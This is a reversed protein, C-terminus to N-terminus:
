RKHSAWRLMSTMGMQICVWKMEPLTHGRPCHVGCTTAQLQMSPSPGWTPGPAPLSLGAEGCGDRRGGASAKSAGAEGRPWM